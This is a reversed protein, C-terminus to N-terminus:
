ARLDPLYKGESPAVITPALIRTDAGSLYSGVVRHTGDLILLGHASQYCPALIVTPESSHECASQINSIRSARDAPWAPLDQRSAEAVTQQRAGVSQYVSPNGSAGRYWVTLMKGIVSKEVIIYDVIEPSYQELLEWSLSSRISGEFLARFDSFRM